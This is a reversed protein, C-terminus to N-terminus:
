IFGEFHPLFVVALAPPPVSGDRQERGSFAAAFTNKTCRLRIRRPQKVKKKLIKGWHLLRLLLIFVFLLDNSEGGSCLAATFCGATQTTTISQFNRCTRKFVVHILTPSPWWRHKCMIWTLIYGKKIQTIELFVGFMGLKARWGVATGKKVAKKKEMPWNCSQQLWQNVDWESFDLKQGQAHQM